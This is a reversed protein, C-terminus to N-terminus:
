KSTSSQRDLDRTLYKSDAIVRYVADGLQTAICTIEVNNNKHGLCDFIM